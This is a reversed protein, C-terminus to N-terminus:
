KLSQDKFGIASKGLINKKTTPTSDPGAVQFSDAQLLAIRNMPPTHAARSTQPAPNAPSITPTLPLLTRKGAWISTGLPPLGTLSARVPAARRVRVIM